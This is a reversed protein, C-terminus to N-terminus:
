YKSLGEKLNIKAEWGPLKLGNNWPNMVERKRYSKGGWVVNIKKNTVSEFVQIIEKLKYSKDSEISYKLHCPKNNNELMESALGFAKCVDNIHVLNLMQDGPSM